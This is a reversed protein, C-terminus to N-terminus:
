RIASKSETNMSGCGMISNTNGCLTINPTICTVIISRYLYGLAIYSSGGFITRRRVTPSNHTLQMFLLVTRDIWAGHVRMAHVNLKSHPLDVRPRISRGIQQATYNRMCPRCSIFHPLWHLVQCVQYEQNCLWVHYTCHHPSRRTSSWTQESDERNNSETKSVNLTAQCTVCHSNIGAM